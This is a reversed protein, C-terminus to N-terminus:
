AAGSRRVSLEVNDLPKQSTAGVLARLRDRHRTENFGPQVSGPRPQRLTPFPCHGLPGM